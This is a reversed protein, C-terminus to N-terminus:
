EINYRHKKSKTNEKRKDLYMILSDPELDYQGKLFSTWFQIDEIDDQNLDFSDSIIPVSYPRDAVSATGECYQAYSAKFCRKSFLVGIRAHMM